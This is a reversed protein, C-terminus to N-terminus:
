TVIDRFPPEMVVYHIAAPLQDCPSSRNLGIERVISGNDSAQRGSSLFLRAAPGTKAHSDLM